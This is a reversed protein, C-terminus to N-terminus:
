VHAGPLESRRRYLRQSATSSIFGNAAYGGKQLEGRRRRRRPTEALLWEGLNSLGDPRPGGGAGHRSGVLGAALRVVMALTPSLPLKRVAFNDMQTFNSARATQGIYNSDNRDWQVTRSVSASDAKNLNVVRGNFFVTVTVTSNTRFGNLAFAATLTGRNTGVLATELITGNRWVKVYGNLDLEVLFDAM